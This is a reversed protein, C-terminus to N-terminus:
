ASAPWKVDEAMEVATAFLRHTKNHEALGKRTEFCKGCDKCDYSHGSHTGVHLNLDFECNFTKACLKCHHVRLFHSNRHDSLQGNDPFKLLCIDCKFLGDALDILPELPRNVSRMRETLHLSLHIQYALDDAFTMCCVPCMHYPLDGNLDNSSSQKLPLSVKAEPTTARSANVSRVKPLSKLARNRSTVASRKLLRRKCRLKEAKLLAISPSDNSSKRKLQEETRSTSSVTANAQFVSLPLNPNSLEFSYFQKPFHDIVHQIMELRHGFTVACLRCGGIATIGALVVSSDVPTVKSRIQATAATLAPFLSFAALSAPTEPVSPTSTVPSETRSSSQQEETKKGLMQDLQFKKRSSGAAACISM